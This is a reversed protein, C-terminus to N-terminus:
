TRAYRRRSAMKLRQRVTPRAPSQPTKRWDPGYATVYLHNTSRRRQHGRTLSCLRQTDIRLGKSTPRVLPLQTEHSRWTAVPTIERRLYLNVGM